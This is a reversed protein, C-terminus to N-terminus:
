LSDPERFVPILFVLLPECYTLLRLLHRGERDVIDTVQITPYCAFDLGPSL